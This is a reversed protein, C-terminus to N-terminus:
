PSCAMEQTRYLSAADLELYSFSHGGCVVLTHVSQDSAEGEAFIGNKRHSRAKVHFSIGSIMTCIAVQAMFSAGSAWDTVRVDRNPSCLGLTKDYGYFRRTSFLYGKSRLDGQRFRCSCPAHRIGLHSSVTLRPKNQAILQVKPQTEPTM